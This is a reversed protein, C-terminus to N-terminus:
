RKRKKGTTPQKKKILKKLMRETKKVGYKPLLKDELARKKLVVPDHAHSYKYVLNRVRNPPARGLMKENIKRALLHWYRFLIQILVFLALLGLILTVLLVLANGFFSETM